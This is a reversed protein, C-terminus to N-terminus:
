WGAPSRSFGNKLRDGAGAARAAGEASPIVVLAQGPSVSAEHPPNFRWESGDRVAVLLWEVSHGLEGIRM